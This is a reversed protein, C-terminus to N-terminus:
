EMKYMPELYETLFSGIKEDLPVFPTRRVFVSFAAICHCCDLFLLQKSVLGATKTGMEM